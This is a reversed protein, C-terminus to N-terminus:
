PSERSKERRCRASNERCVGTRVAEPAGSWRNLLRAHVSSEQGKRRRGAEAQQCWGGERMRKKSWATGPTPDVTAAEGLSNVSSKVCFISAGNHRTLTDPAPPRSRRRGGLRRLVLRIRRHKMHPEALGQRGAGVDHRPMDDGDVGMRRRTRVLERDRGLSRAPSLRYRCPRRREGRPRTPQMEGRHESEEPPRQEPEGQAPSAERAIQRDRRSPRHPQNTDRRDDGQYRTDAPQRGRDRVHRPDPGVDEIRFVIWAKKKSVGNPGVAIPRSIRRAITTM